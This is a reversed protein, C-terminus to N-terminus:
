DGGRRRDIEVAITGIPIPVPAEPKTVRVTVREIRAFAALIERAIAEALAEILRYRHTTVIHQVLAVIEGYHVSDEMADSLGAARLDAECALDIHFRQGLVTEEPLLGHFGFFRLDNILIRDTM